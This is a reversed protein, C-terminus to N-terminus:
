RWIFRNGILTHVHDVLFYKRFTGNKSVMVTDDDFIILREDGLKVIYYEESMHGDTDPDYKKVNAFKLTWKYDEVTDYQKQELTGIAAIRSGKKIHLATVETFDDPLLSGLSIERFVTMYLIGYFVSCSLIILLLSSLIRKTRQKRMMVVFKNKSTEDQIPIDFTAKLSIYENKCEHCSELHDAVANKTTESVVDDIYLPLIDRVIDCSLTNKM